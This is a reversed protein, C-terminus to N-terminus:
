LFTLGRWDPAKKKHRTGFHTVTQSRRSFPNTPLAELPGGRGREKPGERIGFGAGARKRKKEGEFFPPVHGGKRDPGEEASCCVFNGKRKSFVVRGQGQGGGGQWVVVSADTKRRKGQEESPLTIM